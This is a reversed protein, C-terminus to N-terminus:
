EFGPQIGPIASEGPQLVDAPCVYHFGDPGCNANLTAIIRRCDASTQSPGSIFYPKGDRGMEFTERAAAPDVGNFIPRLKHYDRHPSLGIAGAYAVADEVLKRASSPDIARVGNERFKEVHRRYEDSTTVKGFCDKVGMCYTDVLFVVTAAGSAAKRGVHLQALGREEFDLNILCDVVPAATLQTLREAMGMGRARSLERRKQNQRAKRKALRKQRKAETRAM